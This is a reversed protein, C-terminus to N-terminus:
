ASVRIADSPTPQRIEQLPLWARFTTGNDDSDVTITGGMLDVYSKVIALGLGCHPSDAHRSPDARYFREFIHQRVESDIGIGTDSVEFQVGGTKGKGGAGREIRLDIRGEPRNYQVANHLLNLLIERVKNPDAETLLSDGAHYTLTLGLETALPRVMDAAERALETVDVPEVQLRVVGADLRALALLQEVLCGMHRASVQCEELIERYEECSRSKRLAVDVTTTLAALPTRLEHSIDAAAQKERAFADRLQALTEALRGAIPRLENPLRSSDIKLRFDKESVQSVADSLRSLPALGLRVLVFGGTVIGAFTILATWGLRGRLHGLAAATDGELAALQEDRQQQFQAVRAELRATDSAYQIYFFEESRRVNGRKGFGPMWFVPNRGVLYAKLTVRRLVKGDLHVDDFHERDAETVKRIDRPLEFSQQGLSASRQYTIPSWRGQAPNFLLGFTQFYEQPQNDSAPPLYDEADKIFVEYPRGFRYRWNVTGVDRSPHGPQYLPPTSSASAASHGLALLFLHFEYSPQRTRSKSVLLMAQRFVRQDLTARSERVHDNYQTWVLNATSAQKDMLTKATTQYVLTFVASLALGLLALFYLLLSLRISKV